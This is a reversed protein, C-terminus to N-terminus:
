SLLLTPPSYIIKPVSHVYFLLQQQKVFGMNRELPHFSVAHYFSLTLYSIWHFDVQVVSLPTLPHLFEQFSDESFTISYNTATKCECMSCHGDSPVFEAIQTCLLLWKGFSCVICIQLYHYDRKLSLNSIQKIIFM